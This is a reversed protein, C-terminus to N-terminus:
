TTPKPTTSSMVERKRQFSTHIKDVVDDEVVSMHSKAEAHMDRLLKQIAASDVGYHKALEYVRLKRAM